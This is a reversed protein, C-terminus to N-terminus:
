APGTMLIYNAHQSCPVTINPLLCNVAIADTGPFSLLGIHKLFSSLCVLPPPAVVVVFTSCAKEM